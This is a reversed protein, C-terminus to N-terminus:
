EPAEIILPAPAIGILECQCTGFIDPHYEDPAQDSALMILASCNMANGSFLTLKGRSQELVAQNYQSHDLGRLRWFRWDDSSPQAQFDAIAVAQEGKNTGISVTPLMMFVYCSHGVEPAEWWFQSSDDNQANIPLAAITARGSKLADLATRYDPSTTIPTSAGFQDRILDFLQRDESALMVSYSAQMHTYAAIMEHWIRVISHFPFAGHHNAALRKLMASERAPRVPFLPAATQAQQKKLAGIQEVFRGRKMMLAHIQDDIADISARLTELKDEMSSMM